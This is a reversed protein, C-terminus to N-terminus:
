GPLTLLEAHHLRDLYRWEWGRAAAPCLDLMRRSQAFNNGQWYQLALSVQNFYLAQEAAARAQEKQDREHAAAAREREKDRAAREAIDRQQQEGQLAQSAAVLGWSTGAIGGVLALLLLAAAMVPGR